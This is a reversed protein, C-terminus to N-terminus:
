KLSSGLLAGLGLCWTLLGAQSVANAILSILGFTVNALLTFAVQAAVGMAICVGARSPRWKADAGCFVALIPVSVFLIILLTNVAPLADVPISVLGTEVRLIAMVALLVFFWRLGSGAGVPQAAPDAELDPVGNAAM